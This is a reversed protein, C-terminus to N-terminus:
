PQELGLDLAGVIEEYGERRALERPPVGDGDPLRPNAGADLLMRVIELHRAGGDGLVIAEHLATWGLNNVHDLNSGADILLRVTSVHGRESAPILAIGGFRNTVTLDGGAELAAIVVDDMGNAGAFLLVSDLRRDRANVDAGQAILDLARARDGSRLLTLAEMGLAHAKDDDM